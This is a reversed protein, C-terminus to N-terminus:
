LPDVIGKCNDGHWRKYMHPKANIGCHPCILKPRNLANESILLKTEEKHKQNKFSPVDREGLEFQLKRSESLKRKGEDSYKIGKRGKSVKSKEEDTMKYGKARGVLPKGRLNKSKKLRIDERKSPNDYLMRIRCQQKQNERSAPNLQGSAFGVSNNNFNMCNEKGVHEKLLHEEAVVLDDFNDYFCLISKTLINKDKISRVWKGSGFYGDEINNTSHRGVYYKGTKSEVM